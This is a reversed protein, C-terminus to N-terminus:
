GENGQQNKGAYRAVAEILTAKKIPKTLHATCGADLSKQTDEVMAHATLAIISTEKKGNEKEWKRIEGTATYGDMVPMQIDMLVLDYKGSKFKEVAIEGNEAIDINDSTRKFYTQILLRNDASDEVLLINFSRVKSFDVPKVEAVRGVASVDKRGLIIAIAELLEAKKVPKVLYSSIGLEKCRTTDGSRNDSTLMMVRALVPAGMEDKLHKALEFGDMGPMRGDILALQFPDKAEIARKFESLGHGGDEAETVLAGLGSLTKSLILRNTANDDVVLVKFGKLDVPLKQIREKPEPQIAFEVIFSFTSGQGPKSEVQINGGMLEVLQKSIALGLGTGGYKRTTSSDAQTFVDFITNIKDQPIGIGTDTVSFLLVVKDNGARRGGAGSKQNGVGSGQRKVQIIVEGKKTFKIANGLLNILIQRLRVPDGLLNIPIDPTISCVLELGKEHARIAMVECLKEIMDEFNFDTTELHIRGAEVKSIDLIDNIIGLLNEGASRFIRVYQEQDSDLLTEQLLDAMGIIANMPTRIEHSMSALFESKTHNATEAEEKAKQLEEEARKRGSIEQVLADRSVTTKQLDESMQNFSDALEGIEDETQVEIRNEFHGKGLKAIGDMLHRIPRLISFDALFFVALGAIVIFFIGFAIARNRLRSIEKDTIDTFIGIRILGIQSGAIDNVPLSFDYIQKGSDLRSYQVLKEDAQLAKLTIPDDYISDVKEPVNHYYVKGDNDMVFCYQAYPIANVLKQCDKNLGTLEGLNLGLETVDEILLKLEQSQAFVREIVSEKHVRIFDQLNFYVSISIAFLIIGVTMLILKGRLKFRIRV